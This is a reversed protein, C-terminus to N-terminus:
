SNQEEEDIGTKKCNVESAVQHFNEFGQVSGLDEDICQGV